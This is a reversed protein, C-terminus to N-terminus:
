APTIAPRLIPREDIPLNVLASVVGMAITLVWM